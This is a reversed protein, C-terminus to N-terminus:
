EVCQNCRSVFSAYARKMDDHFYQGQFFARDQANYWWTVHKTQVHPGGPIELLALWLFTDRPDKFSALLKADKREAVALMDTLQENETRITTM